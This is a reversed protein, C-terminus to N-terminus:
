KGHHQLALIHHDIIISKIDGFISQQAEIFSCFVQCQCTLIGSPILTVHNIVAKILLWIWNRNITNNLKDATFLMTARTAQHHAMNCWSILNINAANNYWNRHIVGSRLFSSVVSDEFNKNNARKSTIDTCSQKKM